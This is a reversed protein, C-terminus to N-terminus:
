PTQLDNGLVLAGRLLRCHRFGVVPVWRTLDPLTLRRRLMMM